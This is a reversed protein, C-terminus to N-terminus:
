GGSRRCIDWITLAAPAVAIVIVAVAFLEGSRIAELSFTAALTSLPKGASAALATEAALTLIAWMAGIGAAARISPAQWHVFLWSAAILIVLLTLGSVPLAVVHGLLPSLIFERLAGNLAALGFILVWYFATLLWIM